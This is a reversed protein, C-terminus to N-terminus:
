ESAGRLKLGTSDVILHLEGTGIRGHGDDGRDSANPAAAAREDTPGACAGTDTRGLEDRIFGSVREDIAKADAGGGPIQEPLRSALGSDLLVRLELMAAIPLRPVDVIRISSTEPEIMWAPVLFSRGDSSPPRVHAVMAVRSVVAFIFPTSGNTQSLCVSSRTAVLQGFRSM